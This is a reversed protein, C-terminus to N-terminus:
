DSEKSPSTGKIMRLPAPSLPPPPPFYALGALGSLHAVGPDITIQLLLAPKLHAETSFISFSSLMVFFCTSCAPSGYCPADACTCVASRRPAPPKAREDHFFNVLIRAKSANLQM